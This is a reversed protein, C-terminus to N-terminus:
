DDKLMRIGPFDSVSQSTDNARQVPIARTVQVDLPRVIEDAQRRDHIHVGNIPDNVNDGRDDIPSPGHRTSLHHGTSATVCPPDM